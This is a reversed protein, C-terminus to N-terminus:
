RVLKGILFYLRTEADQVLAGAAQLRTRASGGLPARRALGEDRALEATGHHM